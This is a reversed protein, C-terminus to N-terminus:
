NHMLDREIDWLTNNYVRIGWLRGDGKKPHNNNRIAEDCRWIVNHHIRHGDAGGDTYIGVAVAPKELRNISQIYDYCHEIWNYSRSSDDGQGYLYIAGGDRSINLCAAMHNRSILAPRAYGAVAESGLNRFTNDM